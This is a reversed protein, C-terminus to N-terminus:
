YPDEAQSVAADIAHQATAGVLEVMFPWNTPESRPKLLHEKSAERIASCAEDDVMDLLLAVIAHFGCFDQEGIVAVCPRDCDEYDCIRM